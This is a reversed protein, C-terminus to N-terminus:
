NIQRLVWCAVPRRNWQCVAVIIIVVKHETSCVGKCQPKAQKKGAPVFLLAPWHITSPLFLAKVEQLWSWLEVDSHWSLILKKSTVYCKPGSPFLWFYQGRWNLFIIGFSKKIESPFSAHYDKGQSQSVVCLYFMGQLCPKTKQMTGCAVGFFFCLCLFISIFYPLIVFLFGRHAPLLFVFASVSFSDPSSSWERCYLYNFENICCLKIIKALYLWVEIMWFQPRGFCILRSLGPTKFM